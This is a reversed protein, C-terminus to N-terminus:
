YRKGFECFIADKPMINASQKMIDRVCHSPVAIVICDSGELTETLSSNFIIKPHFIFNGLRPHKRAKDIYSVVNPKYHWATVHHGTKTLTQALASGWTGCGLLSINEM